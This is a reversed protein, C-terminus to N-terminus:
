WTECDSDVGAVTHLVCCGVTGRECPETASRDWAVTEDPECCVRRRPRDVFVAPALQVGGPPNNNTSM